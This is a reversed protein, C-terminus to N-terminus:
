NITTSSIKLSTVKLQDNGSSHINQNPGWVCTWIKKLTYKVMNWIGNYKLKKLYIFCNEM